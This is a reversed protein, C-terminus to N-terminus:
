PRSSWPACRGLGTLCARLRGPRIGVVGPARGPERPLQASRSMCSGARALRAGGVSGFIHVSGCRQTHSVQAHQPAKVYSWRRGCDCSGARAEHPDPMCMCVHCAAAEPHGLTARQGATQAPMGSQLGGACDPMTVRGYLSLFRRSVPHTSGQRRDARAYGALQRHKWGARIGRDASVSSTIAQLRCGLQRLAAPQHQHALHHLAAPRRGHRGHVDGAPVARRLVGHDAQEVGAAGRPQGLAGHVGLTDPAAVPGRRRKGKNLLVRPEKNSRRHKQTPQLALSFPQCKLGRSQCGDQVNWL